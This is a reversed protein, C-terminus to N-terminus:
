IEPSELVFRVSEAAAKEFDEGGFGHGAEPLRVLRCNEYRGAAIEATGPWVVPDKQGQIILVPGRFSKQIKEVDLDAADDYYNRGVVAGLFEQRQPVKEPDPYMKKLDGPINFAPYLLILGRVQDERGAAAMASVLGGQSRGLLFLNKRDLEPLSCVKEMVALLDGEETKVSMDEMRGGSKSEMAGGIIDFIVAAIGHKLFKEAYPISHESCGNFGHSLIVVPFPGRGEEPLLLECHLNCGNRVFSIDNRIM